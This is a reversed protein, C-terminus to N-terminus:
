MLKTDDLSLLGQRRRRIWLPIRRDRCIKLKDHHIIKNKKQGEIEILVPSLVRTVLFPGDYIPLLKKSVGKRTASGADFQWKPDEKKTFEAIRYNM